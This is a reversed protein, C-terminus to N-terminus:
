APRCSIAPWNRNGGHLVTFGFSNGSGDPRATLTRNNDTLTVAASWSNQFTQPATANVTVVWATTGTGTVTLNFRDSWQNGPTYTTTCAGGTPPASM